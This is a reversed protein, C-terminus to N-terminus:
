AALATEIDQWRGINFVEKYGLVSLSHVVLGSRYGAECCFMWPKPLAELEKLYYLHMDWPINITNPAHMLEYEEAPRVDIIVGENNKPIDNIWM